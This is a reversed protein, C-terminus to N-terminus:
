SFVVTVDGTITDAAYSSAELNFVMSDFGSYNTLDFTYSSASEVTSTYYIVKASSIGTNYDHASKSNLLEIRIKTFKSPYSFAIQSTGSPIMIPYLGTFAEVSSSFAKYDQATESAYVRGTNKSNVGVYDKPPTASLNTSTISYANVSSYATNADVTVSATVACTATQTGCTATITASGVGTCTVVGGVVTAVSENSSAWSVTDTTNSPTPTATLIKTAGIATFAHTSDSMSLATCPVADGFTVTKVKNTSFDAGMVVLAKSM